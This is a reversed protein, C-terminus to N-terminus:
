HLGSSGAGNGWHLPPFLPVSRYNCEWRYQFRKRRGASRNKQNFAVHWSSEPHNYTSNNALTTHQLHNNHAAHAGPDRGKCDNLRQEDQVAPDNLYVNASLVM